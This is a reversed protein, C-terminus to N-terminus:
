LEAMKFTYSWHEDNISIIITAVLSYLKTKTSM